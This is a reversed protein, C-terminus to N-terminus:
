KEKMLVKVLAKLEEIEEHQKKISKNQEIIYLTLEEIKEQQIKSIEGLELGNEVINKESPVNPLHGNKMIYVELEELPLLNYNDKFVYDAWTNYVKVEEARVKGKVSLKYTESGDTFNSTGIGISSDTLINGQILSSGKVIFKHSGIIPDNGWGGIIIKSNTNPMDVRGDGNARFSIIGNKDKLELNTGYGEYASVSFRSKGSRDYMNFFVANFDYPSSMSLDHMTFVRKNLSGPIKKGASFIISKEIGDNYDTFVEDNLERGPFIGYTAKLDGEVELKSDPTSTGIGVNGTSANTTTSVTGNPTSIQADINLSLCAIFLIILFSKTQM